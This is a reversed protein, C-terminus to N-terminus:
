KLVDSIDHLAILESVIVVSDGPLIMDHGRPIIVSGRRLIAAVLINNKLKSALQALPINIIPSNENVTFESAEIKGQIINYMTEINSGLTNKMARVYRVIMESTINKPCITTDLELQQIVNDFDIRHIKTIVKNKSVSKSYLSLLINEEDINTLAVFADTNEM